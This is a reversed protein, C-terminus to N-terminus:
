TIGGPQEGTHRGNVPAGPRSIIIPGPMRLMQTLEDVGLLM